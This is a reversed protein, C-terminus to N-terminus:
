SCISRGFLKKSMEAMQKQALAQRQGSLTQTYAVAHHEFAGFCALLVLPSSLRQRRAMRRLLRSERRTLELQEALQAFVKRVSTPGRRAKLRRKIWWMVTLLVALAAAAALVQWPLEVGEAFRESIATVRESPM